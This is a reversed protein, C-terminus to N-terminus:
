CSEGSGNGFRCAERITMCHGGISALVVVLCGVSAILTLVHEVVVALRAM